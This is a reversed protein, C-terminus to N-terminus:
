RVAHRPEPPRPAQHLRPPPPHLPVLLHRQQELPPPRSQGCPHPHIRRTNTEHHTAKRNRVLFRRLSFVALGRLLPPENNATSIKQQELREVRVDSPNKWALWRPIKELEETPVRVRGIRGCSNRINTNQYELERGSGLRSHTMFNM